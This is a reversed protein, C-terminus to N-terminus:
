RRQCEMKGTFADILLNGILEADTLKKHFGKSLLFQGLDNTINQVLVLFFLPHLQFTKYQLKFGQCVIFFEPHVKSLQSDSLCCKSKIVPELRANESRNINEYITRKIRLDTNSARCAIRGFSSLM